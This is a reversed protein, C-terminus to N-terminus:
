TVRPSAPARACIIAGLVITFPVPRQVWQGRLSLLYAYESPLYACPPIVCDGFGREGGVGRGKRKRRRKMRRIATTLSLSSSTLKSAQKHNRPGTSVFPIALLPAEDRDVHGPWCAVGSRRCTTLTRNEGWSAKRGIGVRTQAAFPDVMCAAPPCSCSLTLLLLM